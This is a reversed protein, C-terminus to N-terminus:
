GSISINPFGAERCRDMVNIITQYDISNEPAIIMDESEPYRTKVQQFQQSLTAWDYNGATKSIQQFQLEPSRLELGSERIFLFNLVTAKPRQEQVAAAPRELNPLSLELVTIRVFVATLLLFPILILFINMVATVNLDTESSRSRMRNQLAKKLNM